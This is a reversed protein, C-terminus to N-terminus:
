KIWKRVVHEAKGGGAVWGLQDDALLMKDSTRPKDLDENTKAEKLQQKGNLRKKIDGFKM